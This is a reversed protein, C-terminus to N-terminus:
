AGPQLRKSWLLVQPPIRHSSRAGHSKKPKASFDSLRTADLLTEPTGWALM